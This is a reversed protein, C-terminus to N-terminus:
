GAFTEFLGALPVFYIVGAVATVVLWTVGIQWDPLKAYWSNMKCGDADFRETICLTEYQVSTPIGSLEHNIATPTKGTEGGGGFGGHRRSAKPPRNISAREQLTAQTWTQALELLGQKDRGTKAECASLIAKKAYQWFQDAQSM